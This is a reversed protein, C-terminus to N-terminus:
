YNKLLFLLSPIVYKSWSEENHPLKKNIILNVNEKKFGYQLLKKYWYISSSLIKKELRGEGGCYFAIRVNNRAISKIYNDAFRKRHFIFAPSFSLSMGFVNPYENVIYFSFLGGMSSGGFGRFERDRKTLFTEDILTKIDNVFYSALKEAYPKHKMSLLRNDELYPLYEATRLDVEVPCDLGVIIIGQHGLKIYEHIRNDLEWDGYASTYRDIINQGDCFYFVPFRKKGDYDEPLWVRLTRKREISFPLEVQKTFLTGCSITNPKKTYQTFGEFKM